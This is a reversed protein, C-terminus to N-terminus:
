HESGSLGYDRITDFRHWVIKAFVLPNGCVLQNFSSRTDPVFLAFLQLAHVFFMM